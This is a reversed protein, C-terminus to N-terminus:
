WIIVWVWGLLLVLSLLLKPVDGILTWPAICLPHPALLSPRNSNRRGGGGM